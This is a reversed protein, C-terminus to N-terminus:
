KNKYKQNVCKEVFNLISIEMSTYDIEGQYKLEVDDRVERSPFSPEEFEMIMQYTFETILINPIKEPKM